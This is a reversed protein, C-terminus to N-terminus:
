RIQFGVLCPIGRPLITAPPTARVILHRQGQQERRSEKREQWAETRKPCSEQGAGALGSRAPFTPPRLPARRGGAPPDPSRGGM